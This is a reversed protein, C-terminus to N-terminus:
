RRSQVTGIKNSKIQFAPAPINEVNYLSPLPYEDYCYRIVYSGDSSTATVTQPITIQMTYDGTITAKAWEYKGGEYAVAFGKLEDASPRLRGTGKDFTVLIKDGSCIAKVPRPGESVLGKEGYALARMQLSARYGATKKDQPHIDNWEGTDILTALGSHPIALTALRQQERIECWSNHQLPADHRAMYGALQMIVVPIERGFQKRWSDVMATLYEAYHSTNGLNSEGQYWLVAKFPMDRLPAIMANYLGTPCDVFYTSSPKRPMASGFAMLWTNSLKITMGDALELQYLKGQTFNGRGSQSMLHVMVENDGAKLVGEPITYIRPPYEYTTNGVFRGNVFVSDADKMAGIRITAKKGAASAPVNVVQRFWYSGNSKCWASFVDVSQWTSFDYDASRWRNIVSDEAIMKREWEWGARNELARISDVWNTQHYKINDFESKYEDFTALVEQPMWAEVKTGGVASNIIGIPVGLKEQLNRAMFYCIGSVEGCNSPTIDQWPLVIADDNPHVYNFQHPLKLYRINRNSYDKVDNAVVDMCRRIPLEMNSQGSCLFLDGVLVDKIVIEEGTTSVKMTHPGGAKMKPLYVKWTGDKAVKTKASAGNDMSVTVLQDATAKGWVPVKAERQIVMGDAFWKPLTLQAHLSVTAVFAVFVSLILRYNKM